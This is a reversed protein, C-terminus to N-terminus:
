GTASVGKIDRYAAAFPAYVVGVTLGYVVANVLATVLMWPNFTRYAELMATPDDGSMGGFMSVGSMMTLPAVVVTSLLGIVIAMIGALIAMGLLGWFRGKTVAFSDFFAMRKEAVTIPVALSWRVMLWIMLGVAAVIGVLVLLGAWGEGISFAIAMLVGVGLIAACWVAFLVIALVLTVVFVRVEDMSLRMYGFASEGPRTVARAIAATLVSTVVLQVPLLWAFSAIAGFMANFLAMFEEQSPPQGAPTQEMQESIRVFEIWADANAGMAALSAVSLLFYLAAWWILATPKRRVVRFGEFAAETASFTM